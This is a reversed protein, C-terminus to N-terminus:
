TPLDLDMEAVRKEMGPRICADTEEETLRVAAITARKGLKWAAVRHAGDLIITRGRIKALIVPFEDDVVPKLRSEHYLCQVGNECQVFAHERLRGCAVIRLDLEEVPRPRRKLLEIAKSVRHSCRTQNVPKWAFKDSM